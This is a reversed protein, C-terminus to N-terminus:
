HALGLPLAIGTAAAIYPAFAIPNPKAGTLRHAIVAAACAAALALLALPAGLAAGCLAVLKADGWGMGYGRSVIAAVAFPVFVVVASIATQWDRQAAAFLLLVALPVLTFLDPVIGCLADSCWCAILGFLVVAAIGIEVPTAQLRVLIAGMLAAAAVLLPYPAASPLPGDAAPTISACHSRSVVIAIVAISGFFMACVIATIV